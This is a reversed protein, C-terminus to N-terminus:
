KYQTMDFEFDARDDASIEISYTIACNIWGYSNSVSDLQIRDLNDTILLNLYFPKVVKILWELNSM